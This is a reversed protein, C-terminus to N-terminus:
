YELIQSFNILVVLKVHVFIIVRTQTKYTITQILRISPDTGTDSVAYRLGHLM